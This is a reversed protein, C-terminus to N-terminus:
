PFRSQTVVLSARREGHWSTILAYTASAGINQVFDQYKSTEGRGARNSRRPEPLQCDREGCVVGRDQVAAPHGQDRVPAEHGQDRHDAATHFAWELLESVTYRAPCDGLPKYVYGGQEEPLPVAPQLQDHHRHVEVPGDGRGQDEQRQINRSTPVAAATKVVEARRCPMTMNPQFPAFLRLYRRNRRTLRRSGDVMVQYQDFGKAKM